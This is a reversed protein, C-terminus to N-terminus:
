YVENMRNSIEEVLRVADSAAEERIFPNQRLTDPNFRCLKQEVERRIRELDPDNTLNLKPLLEVIEIANGILTNHFKADPDSLKNAMHNVVKYLRDWLDKIGAQLQERIREETEEKIRELEHEGLDVRFDQVTPM